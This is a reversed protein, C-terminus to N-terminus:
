AVLLLIGDGCDILLSQPLRGALSAVLVSFPSRVVFLLLVKRNMGRRVLDLVVLCRSCGPCRRLRCYQLLAFPPRWPRAPPRMMSPGMMMQPLMILMPFMPSAVLSVCLVTGCLLLRVSTASGPGARQRCQDAPWGYDPHAPTADLCMRCGGADTGRFLCKSVGRHM